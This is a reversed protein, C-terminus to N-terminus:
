KYPKSSDPIFVCSYTKKAVGSAKKNEAVETIKPPSSSGNDTCSVRDYFNWSMIESDSIRILTRAGASFKTVITSESTGGNKSEKKSLQLEPKYLEKGADNTKSKLLVSGEQDMVKVVVKGKRLSIAGVVESGCNIAVETRKPAKDDVKIFLEQKGGRPLNIWALYHHDQTFAELTLRKSQPFSNCLINSSYRTPEKDQTKLQQALARHSFLLGAFAIGITATQVHERIFGRLKTSRQEVTRVNSM